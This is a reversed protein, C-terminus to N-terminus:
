RRSRGFERILRGESTKVWSAGYATLKWRPKGLVPVVLDAAVLDDLARRVTRVTLDAAAALKEIGLEDGPELQVLIVVRTCDVIM